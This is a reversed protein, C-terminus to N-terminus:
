LHNGDAGDREVSMKKGVTGYPTNAQLIKRREINGLRNMRKANIGMRGATTESQAIRNIPVGLRVLGAVFAEDNDM